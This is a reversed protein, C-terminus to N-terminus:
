EQFLSLGQSISLGELPSVVVHNRGFVLSFTSLKRKRREFGSRPILVSVEQQMFPLHRKNLGEAYVLYYVMNSSCPVTLSVAVYEARM